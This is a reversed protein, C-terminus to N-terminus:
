PLPLEADGTATPSRPIAPQVLAGLTVLAAVGLGAMVAATPLASTSGHIGVVPAVLGGFLFQAFGLLAAAAGANTGHNERALAAANPLVLGVSTVVLFFAALLPWLGADAAV